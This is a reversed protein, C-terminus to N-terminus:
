FEVKLNNETCFPIKGLRALTASPNWKKQDQDSDIGLVHHIKVVHFM